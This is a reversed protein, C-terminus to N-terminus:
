ENLYAMYKRDAEAIFEDLTIRGALYSEFDASYIEIPCAYSIVGDVFIDYIDAVVATDSYKSKDTFIFMDKQYLNYQALASVYELTSPLNESAPNVALFLVNVLNKGDNDAQPIETARLQENALFRSAENRLLGMTSYLDEANGYLLELALDNNLNNINAYDTGESYYNFQEKLGKAMKRFAETDFSDHSVLYKLISAEIYQYANYGSNNVLEKENILDIYDFYEEMNLSTIDVGIENCNEANYLHVLGDVAVPVCWIEGDSTMCAEQLYPFCEAIYDSIGVVDNLPYFSGKDRIGSAIYDRSNVYCIDYDTDQSLVKLAMEDGSPTQMEINYGCGFPNENTLYSCLMKITQNGRYYVSIQMRELRGSIANAYWCFDGSAKIDQRHHGMIFVNPMIEAANGESARGSLLTDYSVRNESITIYCEDGFAAFCKLAGLQDTYIPESLKGDSYTKFYYGNDNNCGYIITSSDTAALEFPFDTYIETVEGNKYTYIGLGEYEVPLGSFSYSCKLGAKSSDTGMAIVEDDFVCFTSISDLAPFACVLSSKSTGLDIIDVSPCSGYEESFGEYAAYLNGGSIVIDSINTYETKSESILEGENDYCFLTIGSDVYQAIVLEGNQGGAFALVNSLDIKDYVFYDTIGDNVYSIDQTQGAVCGTFMVACALGVAVTKKGM